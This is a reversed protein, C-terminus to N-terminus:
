VLRVPKEFRDKGAQTGPHRHEIGVHPYEDPVPTGLIQPPQPLFFGDALMKEIQVDSERGSLETRQDATGQGTFRSRMFHYQGRHVPASPGDHYSHRAAREAASITGGRAGDQEHLLIANRLKIFRAAIFGPCSSPSVDV